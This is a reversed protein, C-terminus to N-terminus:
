NDNDDHSTKFCEHFCNCTLCVNETLNVNGYCKPLDEPLKIEAISRDIKGIYAVRM